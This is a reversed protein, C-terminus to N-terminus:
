DAKERQMSSRFERLLVIPDPIRLTFHWTGILIWIKM